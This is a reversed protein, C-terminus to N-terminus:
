FNVVQLIKNKLLPSYNPHAAFFAEVERQAEESHHHRLLARTWKKPFFIDGTRQVEELAELGPRIYKVSYDERLPHNLYTLAKEAWPEVSRNEAKLLSAFVADMALTDPTLARAVFDFERVRDPNVIRSRQVRLIDEQQAPMRLSLEYALNTYDRESLLANSRLRWVEYLLGVIQPDRAHSILCRMLQQRCSTLPHLEAHRWLQSELDGTGVERLPDGLYGCITSAILENTERGLGNLLARMWVDPGILKAQYNEHLIMLLSQRATEDVVEQWHALLWEMTEPTPVFLGYGRGDTNPLILQSGEPIPLVIKEETLCVEIVMAEGDGLFTVNFSQPWVLSRGLPDRQSIELMGEKEAFTIHPMGKQNVWVDSFSALDEESKADLIVILDDWTANGYAFTTLYERIGERFAEEGMIEVLKRMMVPAKNYIISGYILGANRLNDLDQRIANTGSTRDESLASATYNKIANLAHNVEPFLPETIRAAFYNAFVEKTWVDNFWDMTVLDGFWMHATEHAILEARSLEEDLTPHESLFMRTDNYLTAGTHEMGGYQFGPLIILSYKAFPYPIGTYEELWHLSSAVQSFIVDLQAVRKVDVERHYATIVRDGDRYEAKDLKGAVFSFLYTSLPETPKFLIHKRGKEILETEVSTNSVAEWGAPVELQLTFVAKLNPQEFCPFVTRARDPVLLTYLFEDNRNLSQEGATFAIEVCNEGRRTADRPIIIHENVFAYDCVAGNVKVERLLEAHERFDLVVEQKQALTFRICAEAEISECKQEPINFCLGYRLDKITEKRWQALELSVGEDYIKDRTGRGQCGVLLVAMMLAIIRQQM